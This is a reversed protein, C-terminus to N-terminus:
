RRASCLTSGLSILIDVSSRIPLLYSLKKSVEEFLLKNIPAIVGSLRRRGSMPRLYEKRFAKQLPNSSINGLAMM